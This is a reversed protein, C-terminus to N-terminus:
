PTSTPGTYIRLSVLKTDGSAIETNGSQTQFFHVTTNKRLALKRVKVIGGTSNTWNGSAEFAWNTNAAGAYLPNVSAGTISTVTGVVINQENYIALNWGGSNIETALKDAVLKAGDITIM